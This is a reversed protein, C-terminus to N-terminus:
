KIYKTNIIKEEKLINIINNIEKLNIKVKNAIDFINLSGDCYTLVDLYKKEYLIREKSYGTPYLNRKSLMPECLINLKPYIGIEFTKVIEILINLSENLAKQSIIQLNDESTHYEPFTGYKSRCFGSVPM